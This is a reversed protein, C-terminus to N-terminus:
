SQSADPPSAPPLGPVAALSDLINFFNRLQVLELTKLVRPSPQLVFFTSGQGVCQTHLSVMLGIGCSNIVSVRSIDLVVSAFHREALREEVVLKTEASLEPTIEEGATLLLCSGREDITLANM